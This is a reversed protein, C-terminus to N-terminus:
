LVIWKIITFIWSFIWLIIFLSPLIWTYIHRSKLCLGFKQNFNSPTIDNDNMIKFPGMKSKELEKEANEWYELGKSSRYNSIMALISFIIGISCIITPLLFFNQILICFGAFIISNSTLFVSSRETMIRDENIHRQTIIKYVEMEEEMM